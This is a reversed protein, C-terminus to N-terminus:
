DPIGTRRGLLDIKRWAGSEFRWAMVGGMIVVYASATVWPGFSAWEPLLTVMIYGGGLVFTLSFVLTAIMPWFTDGAGRLARNFIIGIADFLQFIAACIMIKGGIDIIEQSLQRAQALTMGPEVRTTVFLSVLERGFLLFALGCISMYTMAVLLATHTRKRALDPRGAGIYRGTLATAAVGIGLAPMFSMSIYRMIAATAVRHAQGFRGVLLAAFLYWTLIDSCLQVGAPWGVRVLNSVQRLRVSLLRRTGYLRDMRKSLFMVILICLMLISSVLTGIAAGELGMSPFGLHGYILVWNAFINFANGTLSAFYVVKPRHVGYFFQEVARCSLFFIGTVLMYRFYMTQLHAEAHGIYNFLPGALLALPLMAASLAVALMIGAWAYQGCKEHRGAGLNQSIYTNTASLTGLAFAHPVFATMGGIFQASLAAPSVWSVMLGDVFRMITSNVMSLSAPWSLHLVERLGALRRSEPNSDLPKGTAPTAPMFAASAMM